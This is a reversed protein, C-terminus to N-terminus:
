GGSSAPNQPVISSHKVAWSVMLTKKARTAAVHLLAKYRELIESQEAKDVASNRAGKPPFNEASLLPIAVAEFELGKARHMTMLRVGEISRDDPENGSLVFAPLRDEHFKSAVRDRLRITACLIGVDRTSELDESTDKAWQILAELEATESEFQRFDPAVGKLLSTYGSLDDVGDDLDDVPVGQMVSVAWRRIEDSTRYNLRLKRARGRVNIGCASLSARRAYIRQHADGVLFISNRDGDPTQPVIARVLKLAQEGMDQTEDVIVSRYPLNAARGELLAIADRYADEPEALGEDIMRSRVDEFIRWLAMRKKRDLPTGRGARSIRAYENRTQVGKAQVIQAWEASPTAPGSEFVPGAPTCVSM